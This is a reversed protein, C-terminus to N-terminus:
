IVVLNSKDIKKIYINKYNDVTVHKHNLVGNPTLTMVPVREERLDIHSKM